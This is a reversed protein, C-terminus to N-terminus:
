GRRLAFNTFGVVKVRAVPKGNQTSRVVIKLNNGAGAPELDSELTLSLSLPEYFVEPVLRLGPLGARLTSEEGPRCEILKAGNEAISDIVRLTTSNAASVGLNLATSGISALAVDGARLQAGLSLLTGAAPGSAEAGHARLGRPPLVIMRVSPPSAVGIHGAAANAARTVPRGSGRVGPVDTVLRV